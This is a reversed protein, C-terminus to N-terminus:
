SDSDSEFYPLLKDKLQLANWLSGEFHLTMWDSVESQLKLKAVLICSGLFIEEATLECSEVISLSLDITTRVAKRVGPNLVV